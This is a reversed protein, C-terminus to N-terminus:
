RFTVDKYKNGPVLSWAYLLGSQLFHFYLCFFLYHQKQKRNSSYCIAAHWLPKLCCPNIIQCKQLVPSHCTESPLHQPTLLATIRRSCRPSFGHKAKEPKWLRGVNKPENGEELFWMRRTRSRNDYRRGQSEQRGQERTLVRAMVDSRGPDNLIIEGDCSGLSWGMTLIGKAVYPLMNVCDPSQFM